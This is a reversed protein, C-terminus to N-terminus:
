SLITSNSATTSNLQSLMTDAAKESIMYTSVATFTSPIRPYVSAGVVRLSSVERVRFESDLVAMPDRDSSIPCTCSAHHGWTSDKTNAKVAEGTVNGGPLIEIVPVLGESLAQLDANYNSVGNDFYNYVIDPVDLPDASRLTVAGTTNRPHAKFIAWTFWDHRATASINYNPFYGRFNVPGSLVFLDYQDNSTATSKYFMTATLGSSSYIGRDGLISTERHKLCEDNTSGDFTSGNLATFNGPIGSIKLLQPSIYVGGAVIVSSFKPSAKYLYQEDLFEIGIARPPTASEDFTVKTAHYNLRVDLPYKESGDDNVADRVALVFERAGNRHAGNASLPIQYYAPQSDRTSTDANADGAILTRLDIVSNTENGLAFAGGTLMSLLQPDEIVINLPATETSLWGDYGHGAAPSIYQNKEMKVLYKRMNQPSWSADGTLTAIYEFDSQHPYIAILANHATCGGLTGTRLYLTCKMTSGAPPNLRAFFNWAMTEDESARASYSPITCNYKTRHGALALRAVLPGGEAGSGVIVYEYGTLNAGKALATVEIICGFLRHLHM